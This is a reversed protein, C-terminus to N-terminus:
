PKYVPFPVWYRVIAKCAVGRVEESFIFIVVLIILAFNWTNLNMAPRFICAWNSSIFSRVLFPSFLEKKKVTIDMNSSASTRKHFEVSLFILRLNHVFWVPYSRSFNFVFLGNFETFLWLISCLPEDIVYITITISKLFYMTFLSEIPWVSVFKMPKAFRLFVEIEVYKRLVHIWYNYLM